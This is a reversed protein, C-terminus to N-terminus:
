QNLETVISKSTLYAVNERLKFDQKQHTADRVHPQVDEYVPVSRPRDTKSCCKGKGHCHGCAFGIVFITISIVLFAVAAFSSVVAIIYVPVDMHPKQIGTM